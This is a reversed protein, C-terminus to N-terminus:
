QIIDVSLSKIETALRKPIDKFAVGFGGPANWIITGIVRVPKLRFFSLVFRENVPLNHPTEIFAGGLSINKAVAKFPSGEHFGKM